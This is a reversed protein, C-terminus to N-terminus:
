QVKLQGDLQLSVGVRSSVSSEILFVVQHIMFDFEDSQGSHAKKSLAMLANVTFLLM